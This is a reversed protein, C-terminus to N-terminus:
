SKSWKYRHLYRHKLSKWKSLHTLTLPLEQPTLAPSVDMSQSLPEPVDRSRVQLMSLHVFSIMTKQQQLKHENVKRQLRQFLVQFHVHLGQFAIIFSKYLGCFLGAKELKGTTPFLSPSMGSHCLFWGPHVSVELLNRTSAPSPLPHRKQPPPLCTCHDWIKQNFERNRLSPATDM